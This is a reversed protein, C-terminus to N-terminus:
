NQGVTEINKMLDEVKEELRDEAESQLKKFQAEYDVDDAMRISSQVAPRNYKHLMYPLPSFINSYLVYWFCVYWDAACICWRRWAFSYGSLEIWISRLLSPISSSYLRSIVLEAMILTCLFSVVIISVQLGVGDTLLLWRISGDKYWIYGIVSTCVNLATPSNVVEYLSWLLEEEDDFFLEERDRKILCIFVLAGPPLFLHRLLHLLLLSLLM